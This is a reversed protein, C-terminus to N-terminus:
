EEVDDRLPRQIEVYVGIDDEVLDHEDSGIWNFWIEGNQGCGTTEIAIPRDRMSEDLNNLFLWYHSHPKIDKAM